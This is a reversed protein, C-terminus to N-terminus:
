IEPQGKGRTFYSRPLLEKLLVLSTSDLVTLFVWFYSLRGALVSSSGGPDM